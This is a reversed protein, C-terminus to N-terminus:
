KRHAAAVGSHDDQAVRLKFRGVGRYLCYVQANVSNTIKTSVVWDELMMAVAM